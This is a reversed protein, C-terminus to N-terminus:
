QSNIDKGNFVNEQNFSKIALNIADINAKKYDWVLRKYPPPFYVKLNIKAFIIQHRFNQHLSPHLGSNIVLNPQNTFILDICSASSPLIHTPENIIQHLGYYSTISEFRTGEVTDIDDSWWSSSRVNFDGTVLLVHPKISNLYTLLQEFNLLFTNYENSSQSPTRYISVLCVRHSGFSLECVLCENLINM